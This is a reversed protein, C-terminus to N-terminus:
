YLPMSDTRLTAYETKGASKCRNPADMVDAVESLARWSM